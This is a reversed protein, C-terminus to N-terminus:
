RFLTHTLFAVGIVWEAMQAYASLLRHRFTPRGSQWESYIATVQLDIGRVWWFLGVLGVAQILDDM